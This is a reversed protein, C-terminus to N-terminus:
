SNFIKLSVKKLENECITNYFVLIVKMDTANTKPSSEQEKEKEVREQEVDVLGMGSTEHPM